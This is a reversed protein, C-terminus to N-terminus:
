NAGRRLPQLYLIIYTSSLRVTEASELPNNQHKNRSNRSVLSIFALIVSSHACFCNTVLTWTNKCSMVSGYIVIFVVRKVYAGRTEIARNEIQQHRWLRNNIVDCHGSLQLAIVHITIDLENSISKIWSSKRTRAHLFISNTMRFGLSVHIYRLCISRFQWWTFTVVGQQHNTLM